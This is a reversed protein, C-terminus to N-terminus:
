FHIAKLEDRVEMESPDSEDTYLEWFNGHYIPKLIEVDMQGVIVEEDGKRDWDVVVVEINDADSIVNQVVGGEVIILVKTKKM